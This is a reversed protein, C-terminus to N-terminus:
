LTNLPFVINRAGREILLRAIRRTAAKTAVATIVLDIDHYNVEEDGRIPLEFNIYTLGHKSRNSDLIARGCVLSPLYYALIPLMLSAGFCYFDGDLLAIRQEAAAMSQLFARHAARVRESNRQVGQPLTVASAPAKQVHCMLAGYHDGDFRYDIVVLGCDALLRSFSRLSFYNLHQHHVQDFSADRVLLEFSPFQVFFDDDDTLVAAMQRMFGRVDYLHEITHSCLYIRRGPAIAALNCDEVYGKVCEIRPDNSTINPDVGVLKAGYDAFRGLLSTDNAGIDIIGAAPEPKSAVVFAHFNDLAIQAGLSASSETVYHTYLFDRPLYMGLYLHECEPCFLLSQDACIPGAYDKSGFPKYVETIPYDPLNVICEGDRCCVPCRNSAQVQTQDFKSTM